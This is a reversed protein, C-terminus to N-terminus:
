GAPPPATSGRVILRPMLRLTCPQPEVRGRRSLLLRVAMGGLNECSVRVSTIPPTTMANMAIDDFGVVSLDRPLRLGAADAARVAALAGWDNGCAIGTPREGSALLAKLREVTPGVHDYAVESWGTPVQAGLRAAHFAFAQARERDALVEGGGIFGLRRHGLGVLHEVAQGIGAFNDTTVQESGGQPDLMDVLVVPRRCAAAFAAVGPGGEGVILVGSVDAALNEVVTRDALDTVVQLIAKGGWHKLEGLIGNLIRLHFENGSQWAPTLLTEEQVPTLPGVALGDPGPAIHEIMGSRHLIVEILQESGSQKSKRTVYGLERIAKEVATRVESRVGENGNVVRSITAPSYGSRKAVDELTTAM